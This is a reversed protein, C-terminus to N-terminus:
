LGSKYRTLIAAHFHECGVKRLSETLMATVNGGVQPLVSVRCLSDAKGDPPSFLGSNCRLLLSLFRLLGDRVNGLDGGRPGDILLTCLEQRGIQSRKPQREMGDIAFLPLSRDGFMVDRHSMGLRNGATARLLGRLAHDQLGVVVEDSPEILEIAVRGDLIQEVSKLHSLRSRDRGEIFDPRFKGLDV